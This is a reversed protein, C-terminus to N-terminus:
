FYRPLCNLLVEFGEFFHLISDNYFVLSADGIVSSFVARAWILHASILDISTFPCSKSGSGLSTKKVVGIQYGLLRKLSSIFLYKNQGHSSIYHFTPITLQLFVSEQHYHYTKILIHQSFSKYM